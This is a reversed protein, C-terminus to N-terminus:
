DAEVTLAELRIRVGGEPLQERAVLRIDALFHGRLAFEREELGDVFADAAGAAEVGDIRIAIRHRVGAFAGSWWDRSAIEEAQWQVSAGLAKGLARLLASTARM